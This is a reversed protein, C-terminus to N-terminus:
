VWCIKVTPWPLWVIVHVCTRDPAGPLVIVKVAEADEPSATEYAELVIPVHVTDPEVSLRFAAPVQVTM